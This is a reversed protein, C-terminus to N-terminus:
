YREPAKKFSEEILKLRRIKIESEKGSVPIKIFDAQLAFALDSIFDDMTEGSRHSVITKVCKSSCLSMIEKVEILSGTQNPKVIVGTVSNMKIAKKVRELNTATLDDGVVLCDVNEAIEAFGKFDEEDLPDELYFLNYKKAIEIMYKIQEERSLNKIRNKYCYRRNNFLQSAAVDLGIDLHSTTEEFINEQVNKM